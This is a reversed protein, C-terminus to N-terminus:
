QKRDAPAKINGEKKAVDNLDQAMELHHVLTPLMHQAYAKVDPDSSEAAAKEFLRITDQHASVGLTSAYRRDFSSGDGASLM